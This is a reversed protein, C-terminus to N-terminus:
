LHKHEQQSKKHLERGTQLALERIEPDPDNKYIRELITLVRPDDSEAIKMVANRRINPDPNGLQSLIERDM